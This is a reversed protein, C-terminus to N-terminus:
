LTRPRSRQLVAVQPRIGRQRSWAEVLQAMADNSAVFRRERFSGHGEPLAEDPPPEWPDLHRSARVDAAVVEISGHLLLGQGLADPVEPPLDVGPFWFPGTWGRGLHLVEGSLADTLQSRLALLPTAFHRTFLHQLAEDIVLRGQPDLRLAGTPPGPTRVEVRVRVFRGDPALRDYALAVQTWGTEGVRRVAGGLRTAPLLEATRLHRHLTRRDLMRAGLDPDLARARQLDADSPDSTDSSRQALVSESRARELWQYTPMGTRNSVEAPLLLSGSTAPDLATLHDLAASLSVHDENPALADLSARLARIYPGVRELPLEM